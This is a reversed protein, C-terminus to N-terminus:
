CALLHRPLLFCAALVYHQDYIFIEREAAKSEPIKIYPLSHAKGKRWANLPM